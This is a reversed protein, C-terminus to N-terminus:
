ATSCFLPESIFAMTFGPAMVAVPMTEPDERWSIQFLIQAIVAVEGAPRERDVLFDELGLSVGVLAVLGDAAQHIGVPM